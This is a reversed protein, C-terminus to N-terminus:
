PIQDMILLFQVKTLVFFVNVWVTIFVMIPLMWFSMAYANKRRLVVSRVQTPLLSMLMCTVYISAHLMMCHNYGQQWNFLAQASRCRLM